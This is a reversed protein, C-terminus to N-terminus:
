MLRCAKVGHKDCERKLQKKSEILLPTECIDRYWMPKFTIHGTGYNSCRIDGGCIPCLMGVTDKKEWGCKVCNYKLEKLFNM